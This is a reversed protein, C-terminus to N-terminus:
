PGEGLYEELWETYTYIDETSNIAFAKILKETGWNENLGLEHRLGIHTYADDWFQYYGIFEQEGGADTYIFTVWATKTSHVTYTFTGDKPIPLLGQVHSWMSRFEDTLWPLIDYYDTSTYLVHNKDEDELTAVTSGLPFWAGKKPWHTFEGYM